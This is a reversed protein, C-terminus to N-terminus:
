NSTSLKRNHSTPTKANRIEALPFVSPDGCLLTTEGVQAYIEGAVEQGLSPALQMTTARVRLQYYTHAPTERDLIFRAERLFVDIGAPNRLGRVSPDATLDAIFFFPPGEGLVTDVGLTARVGLQFIADIDTHRRLLDTVIVGGEVLDDKLWARLMGEVGARTGRQPYIGVATRVLHRNWRAKRRDYRAPPQGNVDSEGARRILDARLPLGIWSALFNLFVSDAQPRYQDLGLRRAFQPPPTLAPNFLDPVGGAHLVIESGAAVSRAFDVDRVLLRSPGSSGPYDAALTTSDADSKALTIFTDAPFSPPPDLPPRLKIEIKGVGLFTLLRNKGDATVELREGPKLDRVFVADDVEVATPESLNSPLDQALKAGSSSEGKRIISSGEPFIEKSPQLAEVEITATPRPTESPGFPDSEAIVRFDGPSVGEILSQLEEFVEEFAKLFRDQFTAPETEDGRYIEPLYDRFRIPRSPYSDM